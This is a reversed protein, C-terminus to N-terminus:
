SRSLGDPFRWIMHSYPQGDRGVPGYTFAVSAGAAKLRRTAVEYTSLVPVQALAMGHRAGFGQRRRALEGYVAPMARGHGQRGFMALSAVRPMPSRWALAVAFPVIMAAREETAVFGELFLGARMVTGIADVVDQWDAGPSMLGFVEHADQPAMDRAVAMVYARRTQTWPSIPRFEVLPRRTM